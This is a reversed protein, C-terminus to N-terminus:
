KLKELEQARCKKCPNEDWFPIWKDCRVCHEPDEKFKRDEREETTENSDRIQKLYKEQRERSAGSRLMFIFIIGVLTVILGLPAFLIGGIIMIISIFYGVGRWFGM